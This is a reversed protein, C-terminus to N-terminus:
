ETRASSSSSTSKRKSKKEEPSQLLARKVGSVKEDLQIDIEDRSDDIMANISSDVNTPSQVAASRDETEDM